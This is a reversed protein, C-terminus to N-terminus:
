SGPRIMPWGRRAWESMGGKVYRVNTYGNDRLAKWVAQSRNQTNCVLLVAQGPDKPIENIRQNIQSMPLLLAGRAVGTAHEAPERIDFLTVKGAELEARATEITVSADQAESCGAIALLAAMLTAAGIRICTRRQALKFLSPASTLLM